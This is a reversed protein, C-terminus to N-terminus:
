RGENVAYGANSVTAVIRIRKETVRQAFEVWHPHTEAMAACM